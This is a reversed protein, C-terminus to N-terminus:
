FILRPYINNWFDCIEQRYSELTHIPYKLNQTYQKDKSYKPWEVLSSGPPSPNGTKAFNVWYDIMAMSVIEQEDTFFEPTLGGESLHFIYGLDSGHFVKM